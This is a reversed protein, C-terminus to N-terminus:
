KRRRRKKDDPKPSDATESQEIRQALERLTEPSVIERDVMGILLREVSGDCLRQIISRVADAAVSHSAVTPSYVYTRGETEHQLYGKEEMRRLLTRVTSDKLPQQSELAVRVEEATARSREWIVAMVASELKSLPPKAQKSM